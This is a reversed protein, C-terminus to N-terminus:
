APIRARGWDGVGAGALSCIRGRRTPAASGRRVKETAGFIAPEVRGGPPSLGDWWDGDGAGALSGTRGFRTPATGGGPPGGGNRPPDESRRTRRPAVARVWWDGGEGGMLSGVRGRRTPAASGRRVKETAGFIRACARGGPPSLGDWPDFQKPHSWPRSSQHPAPLRRHPTHGAPFQGQQACEGGAAAGVLDPPPLQTQAQIMYAAITRDAM